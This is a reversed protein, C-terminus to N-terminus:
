VQGKRLYFEAMKKAARKLRESLTSPAIGTKKALGRVTIRRPHDFYGLELANKVVHIQKDTLRDISEIHRKKM